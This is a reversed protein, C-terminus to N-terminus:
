IKVKRKGTYEVNVSKIEADRVKTLGDRGSRAVTDGVIDATYLPDDADNPHGSCEVVVTITYKM